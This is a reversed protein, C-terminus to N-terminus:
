RRFLLLLSVGVGAKGAPSASARRRQAFWRFVVAAVGLSRSAPQAAFEDALALAFQAAVGQEVAFRFSRSSKSSSFSSSFCPTEDELGLSRTGLFLRSFDSDSFLRCRRHLKFIMKFYTKSGACTSRCWACRAGALDGASPALINRGRRTRPRRRLALSICLLRSSCPAASAGGARGGRRGARHHKTLASM